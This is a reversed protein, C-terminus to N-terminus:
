EELLIKFSKDMPDLHHILCEIWRSGNQLYFPIFNDYREQLSDNNPFLKHKIKTIRKASTENQQKAARMMKSEIMDISKMTKTGESLTTKGLSPDVQVAVEKIEEFLLAAKKRFSNLDIEIDTKNRALRAVLQEERSFLDIAELQNKQLIEQSKKDVILVSDRRILMPFPIELESFLSRRELWYALEGGGGVYALNPLIFEQYVPRLVVNPSISAPKSELLKILTEQTYTSDDITYQSDEKIVRHRDEDHWFINVERAHAQEKFGAEKIAEQDKLVSKQSIEYKIDKVILPLLEKKLEAHDMNFIVLGHDQFLHNTLMMIFQGYNKARNYSDEIISKLKEAHPMNGFTAEVHDLVERLGDLSMRGTAGKQDTQWTFDKNFLHLTAIEEFDHDEGGTVFVPVVHIDSFRENLQASLSIISCIKYIYYLPGTLMSPQHATVISYTDENLFADINKQTSASAELVEYQQSLVNHIQQRPVKTEKRNSIVEQFAEISVSHDYLGSLAPDEEQYAIDRESLQPVQKFPLSIKNYM